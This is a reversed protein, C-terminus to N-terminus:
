LHVIENSVELIALTKLEKQQYDRTPEIQKGRLLSCGCNQQKNVDVGSLNGVKQLFAKVGDNLRSVTESFLTAM